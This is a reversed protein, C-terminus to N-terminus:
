IKFSKEGSFYELKRSVIFSDLVLTSKTQNYWNRIM